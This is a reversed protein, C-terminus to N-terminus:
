ILLGVRWPMSVLAVARRGDQGWVRGGFWRPCSITTDVRCPCFDLKEMRQGSGMWLPEGGINILLNWNNLALLLVQKTEGKFM